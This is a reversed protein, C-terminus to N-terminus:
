RKAGERTATKRVDSRPQIALREEALGLWRLEAEAQFVLRDLHLLWALDGEDALSKQRTYDQIATMTASRQRDIVDGVPVTGRVMAVVVKLGVEDRISVDRPVPQTLWSIAEARGEETIRYAKRGEEDEGMPEVLGDRELRQLTTYVQGVNLSWAGKTLEDFEIKLQYGHKEEDGLLALLGERVGM